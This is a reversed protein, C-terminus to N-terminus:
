RKECFIEKYSFIHKTNIEKYRLTEFLRIPISQNPIILITEADVNNVPGTFLKPM